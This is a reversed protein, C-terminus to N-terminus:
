GGSTTEARGEALGLLEELLRVTAYTDLKCYELLDRRLAEAEEEPMGGLAMRLYRISATQGDQVGLGDYSLDPCWAPLVYKVSTRGCDMPHRLNARVIKELDFLRKEVASFRTRLHPFWGALAALIRREYPSYHVISGSEGLDALLREALKQRPDEGAEALFERHETRGDDHHLHISYQVPVAEYPRTGPWLPLAPMVTEFDLHRVPWVLSKLEAAIASAKVQPKGARVVEVVVNQNQTIGPFGAPIEKISHIGSDLLLHLTKESLRPLNTIPNEAPLFAHCHGFFACRYPSSCQSGIRVEPEEGALMQKLDGLVAPIELTHKRADETVDVIAFLKAPDHSGGDFAYSTDIHIVSARRVQLGAGELVYTQIAADTVFQPKLSTASKVEYVDWLGAGGPADGDAADVRVLIDVRVLVDDFQFAPEYLVKEGSGILRATTALAQARQRHNETVETGGPFLAQALCGIQSGQDFIWQQTETVPDATEPAHISRWLARPCQLGTQYKSKSLMRM